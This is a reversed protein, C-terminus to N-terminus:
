VLVEKGLDRILLYVGGHVSLSKVRRGIGEM